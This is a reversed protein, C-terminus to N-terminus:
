FKHPNITIVALITIKTILTSLTIMISATIITIPKLNPDPKMACTLTRSTVLLGGTESNSFCDM